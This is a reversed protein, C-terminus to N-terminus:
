YAFVRCEELLALSRPLHPNFYDSKLDTATRLSPALAQHCPCSGRAHKFLDRRVIRGGLWRDCSGAVSHRLINRSGKATLKCGQESRPKLWSGISNKLIHRAKAPLEQCLARSTENQRQTRPPPLPLPRPAPSGQRKQIQYLM